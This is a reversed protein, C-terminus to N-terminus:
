MQFFLLNEVVLRAKAANLRRNLNQTENMRQGRL